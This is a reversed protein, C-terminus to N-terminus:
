APAAQRKSALRDGVTSLREGLADMSSRALFGIAFGIVLVVFAFLCALPSTTILALLLRLKLRVVTAAVKADDSIEIRGFLREGIRRPLLVAVTLGFLLLWPTFPLYAVDALGALATRVAPTVRSDRAWRVAECGARVRFEHTGWMLCWCLLAYIALGAAIYGLKILVPETM